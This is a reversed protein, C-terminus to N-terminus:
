GDRIGSWTTLFAGSGPDAVSLAMSTDLHCRESQQGETSTGTDYTDLYGLWMASWRIRIRIWSAWFICNRRIRLVTCLVAYLDSQQGETSPGPLGRCYRPDPDAVSLAMCADFHGRESQQGETSTGTYLQGCLYRSVGTVNSDLPDSDSLGLFMCIRRIRIWLVAYLECRQGETTPGPLGRCHRPVQLGWVGGWPLCRATGRRPAGRVGDCWGGGDQDVPQHLRLMSMAPNRIRM